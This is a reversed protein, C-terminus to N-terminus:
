SPTEEEHEANYGQRQKRVTDVHYEIIASLEPATPHKPIRARLAADWDKTERPNPIESPDLYIDFAKELLELTQVIGVQRGNIFHEVALEMAFEGWEKQNRDVAEKVRAAFTDFSAWYEQESM